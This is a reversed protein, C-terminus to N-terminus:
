LAGVSTLLVLAILAPLLYRTAAHWASAVRPGLGSSELADARRWRWGVFLAIALGNLPLIVNSVLADFADLVPMGDGPGVPLRVDALVGYGLAAPVGVVFAAAAVAPAARRRRTDRSQMLATVPV